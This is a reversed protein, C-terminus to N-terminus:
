YKVPSRKVKPRKKKLFRVAKHTYSVNIKGSTKLWEHVQVHHIRCLPVVHTLKERGLFEYTVHHLQIFKSGCVQCFQPRKSAKYKARFEQWHKSSLYDSYSHYGLKLLLLEFGTLPQLSLPNPFFLSLIPMM